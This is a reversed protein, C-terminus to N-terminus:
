ELCESQIADAARRAFDLITAPSIDLGFQRKLEDQIKRHPLRDEYKLLTAQAITNNGFRGHDKIRDQVSQWAKNRL